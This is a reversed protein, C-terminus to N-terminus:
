EKLLHIFTALAAGMVLYFFISPFFLLGFSGGADGGFYAVFGYFDLIVIFTVTLIAALSYMGELVLYRKWIGYRTWFNFRSNLLGLICGSTGMVLFAIFFPIYSSFYKTVPHSGLERIFFPIIWWGMFVIYLGPNKLIKM